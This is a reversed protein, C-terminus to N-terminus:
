WVCFLKMSSPCSLLSGLTAPRNCGIFLVSTTWSTRSMVFWNVPRCEEEVVVVAEVRPAIEVLGRAAVRGGEVTLLLEAAGDAAGHQAIPGEEEPRVLFPRLVQEARAGREVARRDFLPPADELRDGARTRGHGGQQTGAPRM